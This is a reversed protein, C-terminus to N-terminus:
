PASGIIRSGMNARPHNMAKSSSAIFHSIEKPKRICLPRADLREQRGVNTALLPRIVTPHQAPDDMRQAAAAAPRIARSDVPWLLREVVPEDAPRLTANPFADEAGQRPRLIRRVSQEDVTGADLDVAAGPASFPPRPGHYRGCSPHVCCWAGHRRRRSPCARRGAESVRFHAHNRNKRPPIVPQTGRTELWERLAKSDYGKDAVLEASPPM